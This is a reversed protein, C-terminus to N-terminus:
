IFAEITYDVCDRVTLEYRFLFTTFIESQRAKTEEFKSALHKHRSNDTNM